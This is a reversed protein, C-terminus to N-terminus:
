VQREYNQQATKYRDQIADVDQQLRQLRITSANREKMLNDKEDQVRCVFPRAGSYTMLCNGVADSFTFFGTEPCPVATAGCVCGKPYFSIVFSIPVQLRAREAAAQRQTAEMREVAEQQARRAEAVQTHPESGISTM